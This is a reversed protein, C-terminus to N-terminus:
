AQVIVCVGATNKNDTVIKDWNTGTALEADTPAAGGNTIDWTYGKLGLQFDYNAQWVTSLNDAGTINNMMSIEKVTTIDVSGATLGLVKYVDRTGDHYALAPSDTFVISRGQGGITGQNIVVGGVTDLATANTLGDDILANYAGSHMVWTVVDGQKDGFLALANNLDKQTLNAVIASQDLTVDTNTEIAASVAAIGTNLQDQLYAEVYQNAIETLAASVEASPDGGESVWMLVSNPVTVPGFGGGIKVKVGELEQYATASGTGAATAPDRRYRAASRIDKVFKRRVYDGNTTLGALMIADGSNAGFLDIKQNIADVYLTTMVRSVDDYSQINQISRAM